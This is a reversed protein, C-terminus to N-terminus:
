RLQVKQYRKVKCNITQFWHYCKITPDLRKTSLLGSLSRQQHRHSVNQCGSRFDDESDLAPNKISSHQTRKCSFKLEAIAECSLPVVVYEANACRSLFFRPRFIVERYLFMEGAQPPVQVTVTYNFFLLDFIFHVYQLLSEQGLGCMISCM